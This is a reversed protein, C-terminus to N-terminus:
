VVLYSHRDVLSRWYLISFTDIYWIEHPAEKPKNLHDPWKVLIAAMGM